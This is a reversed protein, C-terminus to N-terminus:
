RNLDVAAKRLLVRVRRSVAASDVLIHVRESQALQRVIEVYVWPVAAFKGPWDAREHPWAIWTAEHAEWEAPMRFGRAAPTQDM